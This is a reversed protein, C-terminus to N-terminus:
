FESALLVRPRTFVLHLSCSYKPGGRDILDSTGFFPLLFSRPCCLLVLRSPVSFFSRRVLPIRLWSPLYYEQLGPLPVALRCAGLILHPSPFPRFGPFLPAEHPLPLFMCTRLKGRWVNNGKSDPESPPSGAELLFSSRVSCDLLFIMLGLWRSRYFPWSL